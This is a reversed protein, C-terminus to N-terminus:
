EALEMERGDVGLDRYPQLMADDTQYYSGDELKWAHKYQNSLEVQKGTEKDRYLDVDRITRNLKEYGRDRIAQRKEYGRRNIEAIEKNTNMRINHRASAGRKNIQAMKLQHEKINRLWEPYPQGSSRIAEALSEDYRGRPATFSFGPLNAISLTRQIQGPYGGQFSNMRFVVLMAIHEEFIQGNVEYELVIEGSEAWSRYEGGAYTSSQNLHQFDKEIDPRRRFSVIKAGSRNRQAYHKLNQEATTIWMNPCGNPSATGSNNGAWTEEPLLAARYMGDPSTAQWEIRTGSLGCGRKNVQWVVEGSPSWGAPMAISIARMARGFGQRDIIDVRQLRPRPNQARHQQEVFEGYEEVSTVAPGEAMSRQQESSQEPLSTDETNGGSFLAFVFTLALVLATQKM